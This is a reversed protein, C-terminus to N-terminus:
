KSENIKFLKICTNLRYCNDCVSTKHQIIENSKSIINLYSGQHYPQGGAKKVSPKRLSKPSPKNLGDSSPLKSSNRSNKYLKENLEKITQNLGDM